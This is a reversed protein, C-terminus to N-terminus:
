KKIIVGQGTPLSLIAVNKDSAFKDFAKKQHIHRPFGYDDLLIVGGLVMKDWFYELAAIEPAVCNMDISLYCIKDTTCESLTDPVIGKVIKVPLGKFTELVQEYVNKYTGFYGGIGENIEEASVLEEVLGEYTDLLYFTKNLKDFEVYEIIARSFAGTNVGCEVFDGELNKVHDAFWCVVYVRWQSTFNNWPNTAAALKYSKAFREEEIFDCNNSTVLGDTNYTVKDGLHRPLLTSGVTIEHYNKIFWGLRIKLNNLRRKIVEFM